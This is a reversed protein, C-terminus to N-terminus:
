SACRRSPRTSARCPPPPRSRLPSRSQRPRRPCRPGSWSWFRLPPIGVAASIASRIEAVDSENTNTVDLTLVAIRADDAALVLVRAHLRDIVNGYPANTVWNTAALDPTIDVAAAGASFSPAAAFSACSFLLALLASLICRPLM